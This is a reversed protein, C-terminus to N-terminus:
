WAPPAGHPPGYGTAHMRATHAAAARLRENHNSAALCGWIISTPWILLLLPVVVFAGLGLTIASFLSGLVTAGVTIGLMILAGTVTSYFMGFVGFFFTLAFAAGVSKPTQVAYVFTPAPHPGPYQGHPPGYPQLTGPATAMQPAPAFARPDYSRGGSDHFGSPVVEGPIVPPGSGDGTPRNGDSYSGPPGSPANSMREGQAADIGTVPGPIGRGTTGM